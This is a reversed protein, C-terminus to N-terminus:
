KDGVYGLARLKETADQDHEVNVPTRRVAGHRAIKSAASLTDNLHQALPKDGKALNTHELPDKQVDYLETDLLGRPNGANAKILKYAGAQRRERVAELVNGEHNEEAYVLETGEFLDGGQVAAPVPLGLQRLLTPMVDISQVWHTVVSSGRQNQPLKILLPVRLQEDYLTTGHWFGGHDAFEEGHDSTVIITMSEYHGGAKLRAILKGFHDDWYAIEGDYLQKLRPAQVPDPKLHAARAFGTGNYPHEFYPDHPDMYGVFMFWPEKPKDALWDFIARNVVAADQYATGAEVRGRSARWTEIRQKLFQVLLLKASIDDAGLVFNPELYRYDDFGQHFNFYPAVNYNTALGFTQWGAKKLVEPLTQVADPLADNKAMVGHSSPLRGSLLSAFSPRTWSSNVYAHEFRIADRSFADLHPTRIRNYGYVPLHDARLTDLVIFLVDGKTNGPAGPASNKELPADTANSQAATAWLVILCALILGVAPWITRAFVGLVGSVRRWVKILAVVVVSVVLVWAIAVLAGKPSAWGFQEHFLDRRIRFAGLALALVGFVSAYAYSQIQEVSLASAKHWHRDLWFAAGALAGLLAGFAGYAVPAYFFVRIHVQGGALNIVLAELLGVAIGAWMGASVTLQALMGLSPAVAMTLPTEVAAHEAPREEEVEINPRYTPSRLMFLVGGSASVIMEAAFGVIPILVAEAAPMGLRTYLAVAAAERLGIGNISAPLLTALIQLSSGFFVEGVGLKVGLARAACVYVLNNFAHTGVGLLAAQVILGTKGHYACVADVLSKVRAQLGPPFRAALWRFIEPRALLTVGVVTVGLFVANVLLVGGLGLFRIGYVSALMVVVGFALQGLVMEVGITATARATKGTHKAVDYIRWGGLGTFGGPTFAGWFRAILFSPGLFRWPARIGQGLLLRQWRVVSCCVACLMMLVSLGFWSWSLEGLRRLLAESGQRETVKRFIVWLMAFSFVVKAGFILKKKFTLAM